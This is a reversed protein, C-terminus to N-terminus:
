CKRSQMVSCILPL